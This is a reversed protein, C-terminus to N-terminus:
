KRQSNVSWSALKHSTKANLRYPIWQEVSPNLIWTRYRNSQENGQLASGAVRTTGEVWTLRMIIYLDWACVSKSELRLNLRRRTWTVNSSYVSVLKLVPPDRARISSMSVFQRWSNFEHVSERWPTSRVCSRGVQLCTLRKHIYIECACALKVQIWSQVRVWMQVDVIEAVLSTLRGNNKKRACGDM